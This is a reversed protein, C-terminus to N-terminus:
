WALSSVIDDAQQNFEDMDLYSMTAAISKHGLFSTAPEVRGADRSILKAISRRTTHCSAGKLMSAPFIKELYKKYVRHVSSRDMPLRSKQSNNAESRFLYQNSDGRTRLYFAVAERCDDRLPREIYNKTKKMRLRIMRVIKNDSDHLDRIKLRLLDSVRFGTSLAVHFLAHDRPSDESLELLKCIQNEKLFLKGM